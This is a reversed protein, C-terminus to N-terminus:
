QSVPVDEFPPFNPIYVTIKQSSAPPAPFKAWNVRQQGPAYDGEYVQLIRNGASDTLFGYKKNEAPDIFYIQSWSFHYTIPKGQSGSLGGPQGTTNVVRWRINLAGGSARRVELLDCRLNPDDSFEASGLVGAPPTQAIASGCFGATGALFAAVFFMGIKTM